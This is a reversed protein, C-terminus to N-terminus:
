IILPAFIYQKECKIHKQAINKVYTKILVPHPEATDMGENEPLQMHM